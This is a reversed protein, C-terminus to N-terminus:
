FFFIKKEIDIFLYHLSYKQVFGWERVKANLEDLDSRGMTPEAIVASMIAVEQERAEIERPLKQKAIYTNVSTEEELRQLLGLFLFLSALIIRVFYIESPFFKYTSKGQPSAGVSAQRLDKLQQLLRQLRQDRHSLAAEEDQRQNILEKERERQVRLEHAAALMADYSPVGEM